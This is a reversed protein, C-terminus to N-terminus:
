RWRHFERREAGWGHHWHSYYVPAPYVYAPGAYVVAPAAYVVAPAAQTMYVPTPAPAPAPAVAVAGVPTVQLAVTAGPDSATQMSYQKGAYEYVVNYAVPRNEYFTQTACSQVSEMRSLPAGEISDGLMAGGIVGAFTALARGTGKGISNGIAGGAIAGMVAGAGSKPNQVQVQQSTCVQRPTAVQQIVPTSSVVRGVEQALCLGSVSLAALCVLSRSAFM